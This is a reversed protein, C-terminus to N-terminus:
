IHILSLTQLEPPNGWHRPFQPKAPKEIQQTKKQPKDVAVANLLGCVLSVIILKKM